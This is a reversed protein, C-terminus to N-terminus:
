GLATAVRANFNRVALVEGAEHPARCLTRIAAKITARDGSLMTAVAKDWSSATPQPAVGGALPNPSDGTALPTPRAELGDGPIAPPVVPPPATPKPHTDSVRESGEHRVPPVGPPPKGTHDVAM